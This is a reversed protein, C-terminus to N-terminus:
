DAEDILRTWNPIYDAVGDLIRLEIKSGNKNAINEWARRTRWDSFTGVISIIKMSSYKSIGDPPPANLFIIKRANFNTASEQVPSSIILKDVHGRPLNNSALTASREGKQIDAIEKGYHTGLIKEAPKFLLVRPRGKGVLVDGNRYFRLPVDRPLLYSIIHLAAFAILSTLLVSFYFFLKKFRGRNYFGGILLLTLPVIWLVWYNAVNSFTACLSFCIWVSFCAAPAASRPYPFLLIFAFAWFCIYAFRLILSNACLFELHSNIMSLYTQPDDVAQYWKMYIGIPSESTGLGHPADTLMKLGSVYIDMRCNASSSHLTLMDEMRSPLASQSYIFMACACWLSISIATNKEFKLGAFYLFFIGACVLSIIAGRSATQVLFYFLAITSIWALASPWKLRFSYLIWIAVILCAIFAGTRNASSVGFGFWDLRQGTQFIAGGM